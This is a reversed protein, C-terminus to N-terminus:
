SEYLPWVGGMAEQREVWGQDFQRFSAASAFNWRKGLRFEDTIDSLLTLVGQM